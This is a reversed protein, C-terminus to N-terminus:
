KLLKQKEDLLRSREAKLIDIETSYLFSGMFKSRYDNILEDIECIQAEIEAIETEKKEKKKKKQGSAAITGLITLGVAAGLGVAANGKKEAEERSRNAM